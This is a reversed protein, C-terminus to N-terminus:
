SGSQNHPNIQIMEKTALSPKTPSALVNALSPTLYLMQQLEMAGMAAERRVSSTM